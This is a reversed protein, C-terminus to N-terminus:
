SYRMLPKVWGKGDWKKGHIMKMAHNLLLEESSDIFDNHGHEFTEMLCSAYWELFRLFAEHRSIKLNKIFFETCIEQLQDHRLLWIYESVDKSHYFFWTGVERDFPDFIYGGNEYNWVCQIENASECMKIYKESTDM